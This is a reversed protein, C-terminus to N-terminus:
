LALSRLAAQKAEKIAEVSKGGKALVYLGFYVALLHRAEARRQQAGAPAYPLESLLAELARELRAFSDQVAQETEPDLMAQDVSANCLFCGRRDRRQAIADIPFDLFRSLRTEPAGEGTLLQVSHDIATRDYLALAKLYITRKDGFATYLSGKRLGTAAMLDSISTGDFGKAWFVEMIKALTAQEDFERPRGPARVERM